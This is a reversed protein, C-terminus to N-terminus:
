AVGVGCSASARSLRMWSSSIISGTSSRAPAGAVSNMLLASSGCIRAKMRSIREMSPSWRGRSSPWFRRRALWETSPMRRARRGPLDRSVYWAEDVRSRMLPQSSRVRPM